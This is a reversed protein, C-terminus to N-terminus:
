KVFMSGSRSGYKKRCLHYEQYKKKLFVKSGGGVGWFFIVFFCALHLNIFDILNKGWFIGMASLLVM